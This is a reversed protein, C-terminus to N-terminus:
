SCFGQQLCGSKPNTTWFEIVPRGNRNIIEAERIYDHTPLIYPAVNNSEPPTFTVSYKDDEFIINAGSILPNLEIDVASFGHPILKDPTDCLTSDRELGLCKEITNTISLATDSVEQYAERKNKHKLSPVSVGALIGICASLLALNILFKGNTKKPNLM